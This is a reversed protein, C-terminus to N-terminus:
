MMVSGISVKGELGEGVAPLFCKYVFMGSQDFNNLADLSYKDYMKQESLCTGLMM